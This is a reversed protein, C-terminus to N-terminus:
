LHQIHDFPFFPIIFGAPFSKQNEWWGQGVSRAEWRSVVPGRGQSSGLLSRVWPSKRDAYPRDLGYDVPPGRSLSGVDSFAHVRGRPTGVEVFLTASSSLSHYSSWDGPAGCQDPTPLGAGTDNFVPPQNLARRGSVQPGNQPGAPREPIDSARHTQERCGKDRISGSEAHRIAGGRARVWFDPGRGSFFGRSGTRERHLILLQPSTRPV